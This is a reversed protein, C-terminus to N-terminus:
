GAAEDDTPILAWPAGLPVDQALKRRIAGLGRRQLAKVAGVRKGVVTAIQEITLDGVIRLLMVDRQDEVLSEILRVAEADGLRRLAAEASSPAEDAHDDTDGLPEVQPRRRLKRREDILLNRAITFLWARLQPENGRFRDLRQFARLFVDNTSGEADAAGQSRLYAMIPRANTLYLQEFAWPHGAM